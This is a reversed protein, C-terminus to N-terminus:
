HLVLNKTEVAFKPIVSVVFGAATAVSLCALVILPNVGQSVMIGVIFPFVATGFRGCNYTFGAGRGRLELPFLEPLYFTFSGFAGFVFLGVPFMLCFRVYPSMDPIGFAIIIFITSCFFYIRYVWLRGLKMAIPIVLLTGILGGFNFLMNGLVSYQNQTIKRETADEIPSALHTSLIPIFTSICWWSILAPCVFLIASITRKRLDANAFLDLYSSGKKKKKLPTLSTSSFESESRIPPMVPQDNLDIEKLDDETNLSISDENKQFAAPSASVISVNRNRPPTQPLETENNENIENSELTNNEEEEEEKERKKQELWADPEKVCIRVFIGVITPIVGIAFLIRWSLWLPIPGGTVVPANIDGSMLGDTILMTSNTITGNVIPNTTTQLLVSTILYNVAFSAMSGLPAATYLLVGGIVRKEIPLTESILAAGASWEGGIGLSAVFRLIVLVSIHFSFAALFTGISYVIITIMMTKSRGVKDTLWGFFVGGCGWGFLLVTSLISSWLATQEKAATSTIQDDPYGLLNPICIPAAYSFLVGDFIDFAWGLWASSLVLYQYGTLGWFRRKGDNTRFEDDEYNDNPNGSNDDNDKENDENFHNSPITDEEKAEKSSSNSSVTSKANTSNTSQQPPTSNNMEKKPPNSSTASTTKTVTATTTTGNSKPVVSGPTPATTSSSSPTPSIPSSITTVISFQQQPQQQQQQQYWTLNNPKEERPSVNIYTIPFLTVSDAFRVRKKQAPQVRTSPDIISRKPGNNVFPSEM